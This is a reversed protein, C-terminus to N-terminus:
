RPWWWRSKSHPLQAWISGLMYLQRFSDWHEQRAPMVSFDELKQQHASLFLISLTLEHSGNKRLHIRQSIFAALRWYFLGNLNGPQRMSSSTRPTILWRTRCSAADDKGSKDWNYTLRLHHAGTWCEVNKNKTYRHKTKQRLTEFGTTKSLPSARRSRQGSWFFYSSCNCVCRCLWYTTTSITHNCM